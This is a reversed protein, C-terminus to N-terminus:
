ILESIRRLAVRAVWIKERASRYDERFICEEAERLEAAVLDILRRAKERRTAM